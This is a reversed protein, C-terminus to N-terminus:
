EMRVKTKEEEHKQVDKLLAVEDLLVNRHRKIQLL